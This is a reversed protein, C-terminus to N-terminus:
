APFNGLQDLTISESKGARNGFPKLLSKRIRSNSKQLKRGLNADFGGLKGTLKVPIWSILNNNRSGSNKIHWYKGQIGFNQSVWVNLQCCESEAM